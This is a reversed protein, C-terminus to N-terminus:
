GFDIIVRCIGSGVEIMTGHIDRDLFALLQLQCRNVFRKLGHFVSGVANAGRGALGNWIFPKVGEGSGFVQLLMTWSLLLRMGPRHFLFKQSRGKSSAAHILM